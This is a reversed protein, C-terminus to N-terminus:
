GSLRNLTFRFKASRSKSRTVDGGIIFKKGAYIFQLAFSLENDQIDGLVTLDERMIKDVYLGKARRPPLITSVEVGGFGDPAITNLDGACEQWEAERSDAWQLIQAFELAANRVDPSDTELLRRLKAKLAKLRPRQRLLDGMVFSYFSGVRGRFAQIIPFLGSFHDRHPHTLGIFSLSEAGLQHLKDLAKPAEAARANSDVVAFSREGDRHYEIVVSLGHEVNLIHFTLM